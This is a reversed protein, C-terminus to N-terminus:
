TMQRGWHLRLGSERPEPWLKSSAPFSNNACPGDVGDFACNDRVLEMRADLTLASDWLSGERLREASGICCGVRNLAEVM